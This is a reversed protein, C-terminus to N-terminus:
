NKCVCGSRETSKMKQISTMSHTKYEKKLLEIKAVSPMRNVIRKKKPQYVARQVIQLLLGNKAVSKCSLRYKFLTYLCDVQQNTFCFADMKRLLEKIGGLLSIHCRCDTLFCMNDDHHAIRYEKSVIYKKYTNGSVFLTKETYIEYFTGIAKTM